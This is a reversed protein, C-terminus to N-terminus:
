ECFQVFVFFFSSKTPKKKTKRKGQCIKSETSNVHHYGVNCQCYYDGPTNVCTHRLCPDDDLDSCEDIDICSPFTTEYQGTSNCYVVAEGRMRYGHNCTVGVYDGGTVYTMNLVAHPISIEDCVPALCQPPPHTWQGDEGCVSVNYGILRDGPMCSYKVRAGFKYNSPYETNRNDGNPLPVLKPCSIKQCTPSTANWRGGMECVIPNANSIKYGERCGFWVYSGYSFNETDTREFIHANDPLPALSPCDYSISVSWGRRNVQEDTIFNLDFNGSDSRLRDTVNQSTITTFNSSVGLKVQLLDFKPEIDIEHFLLTAPQTWNYKWTCNLNNPYNNVGYGPSSFVIYGQTIEQIQCGSQYFAKFGREGIYADTRFRLFLYPGSSILIPPIEDGSFRGLLGAQESRGDRIEIWDGPGALNFDGFDIYVIDSGHIHSIIWDCVLNSPYTQLGYGPSEIWLRDGESSTTLTGGCRIERAKWSANFGRGAINQDSEFIVLLFNTSSLPVTPTNNGTFVGVLPDAELAGDYVTVKDYPAELDFTEFNLQIRTGIPSSIKWHCSSYSPYSHSDNYPSHFTGNLGQYIGGCTGNCDQEDSQDACDPTGDCHWKANICASGDKCRFQSKACSSAQCVFPLRQQCDGLAWRYIGIDTVNNVGLYSCTRFGIHFVKPQSLAWFGQYAQAVEGDGWEYDGAATRSLGIWIFNLDSLDNSSLIKEHLFEGFIRNEFLGSVKLLSAGNSRCYAQAQDFTTLETVVLLCSGGVKHWGNDCTFLASQTEYFPLDFQYELEQSQSFRDLFILLGISWLLVTLLFSRRSSMLQVNSDM